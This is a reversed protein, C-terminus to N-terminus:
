LNYKLASIEENTAKILRDEKIWSYMGEKNVMKDKDEYKKLRCIDRVMTYQRYDYGDIVYITNTDDGIIKVPDGIKFKEIHKEEFTKIYKM